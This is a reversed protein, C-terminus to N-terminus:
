IGRFAKFTGLGFLHMYWFLCFVRFRGLGWLLRGGVGAKGAWPCWLELQLMRSTSCSCIFKDGLHKNHDEKFGVEGLALTCAQSDAEQVAQFCPCPQCVLLVSTHKSGLYLAKNIELPCM